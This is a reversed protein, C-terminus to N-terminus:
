ATANHLWTFLETRNPMAAVRDLIAVLSEWEPSLTNRYFRMVRNLAYDVTMDESNALWSSGDVIAKTMALHHIDSDGSFEKFPLGVRQALDKIAAFAKQQAGVYPEYRKRLEAAHYAAREAKEAAEFSEKTEPQQLKMSPDLEGKQFQAAVSAIMDDIKDSPHVYAVMGGATTFIEIRYRTPDEFKHARHMKQGPKLNNMRWQISTDKVDFQYRSGKATWYKDGYDTWSTIRDGLVAAIKAAMARNLNEARPKVLYNTATSGPRLHFVEVVRFAARTLFCIQEPERDNIIASNINKSTDKIADIHAKRLLKTQEAGTRQPFVYTKGSFAGTKIEPKASLDLQLATLFAKAYKNRGKNRNPFRKLAIWLLDRATPDGPAGGGDLGMQKLLSVAMWEEVATMDLSMKSHDELVRLYKAQQGYWVDAPYNLVYKLPYAYVGVPDSHSPTQFATRDLVDSAHNSFQVYLRAANPHRRYKTRFEEFSKPYLDSYHIESLLERLRM